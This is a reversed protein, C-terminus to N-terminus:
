SIRSSLNRLGPIILVKTTVLQVFSRLPNWDNTQPANYYSTVVLLPATSVSPGQADDYNWYDFMRNDM